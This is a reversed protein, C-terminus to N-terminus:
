PGADSGSSTASKRDQTAWNEIIHHNTRVAVRKNGVLGHWKLLAAVIAYCEKEWPSWNLQSGSLTRSSFVLPQLAGDPGEHRLAVGVAWPSTDPSLVFDKDWDYNSPFLIQSLM